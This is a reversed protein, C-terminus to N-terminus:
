TKDSLNEVWIQHASKDAQPTDSEFCHYPFLPFTIATKM